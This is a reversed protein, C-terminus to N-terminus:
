ALLGSGINLENFRQSQPGLGESIASDNLGSRVRMDSTFLVKGSRIDLLLKLEQITASEDLIAKRILLRGAGGPAFFSEVKSLILGIVATVIVLIVSAKAVGKNNKFANIILQGPNNVAGLAIGVDKQTTKLGEDLKSVKDRLEKFAQNRTFAQASTRDKAKIGSAIDSDAKRETLTKRRKKIIASPLAEEETVTEGFIAGRPGLTRGQRGPRRGIQETALTGRKVLSEARMVRRELEKLEEESLINIRIRRIVPM